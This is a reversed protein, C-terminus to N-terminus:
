FDASIGRDYLPLMRRIGIIYCTTLESASRDAGYSM